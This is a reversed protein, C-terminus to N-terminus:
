SPVRAAIAVVDGLSGLNLIREVVRHAHIMWTNKFSGSKIQEAAMQECDFTRNRWDRILTVPNFGFTVTETVEFGFRAFYAAFAQATWYNLHDIGVYRDKSRLLRQTVGSFNPVSALLVGGPRLWQRACKVFRNPDPLHELTAWMTIADFKAPFTASLFDGARINIGAKQGCAVSSPSIDIGEAQFGLETAARVFGGVSCGVDLLRGMPSNRLLLGVERQYHKPSLLFQQLDEISYYRRGCEDYHNKLALEDPWPFIFTFRCGACAYYDVEAKTFSPQVEESGCVPCSPNSRALPEPRVPKALIM